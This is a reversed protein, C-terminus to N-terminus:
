HTVHILEELLIKYNWGLFSMDEKWKQVIKPIDKKDCHTQSYVSWKNACSVDIMCILQYM